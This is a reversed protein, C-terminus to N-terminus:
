KLKATGCHAVCRYGSECAIQRAAARCEDVMEDLDNYTDALVQPGRAKEVCAVFVREMQERNCTEYHESIPQPECGVLVLGLALRKM